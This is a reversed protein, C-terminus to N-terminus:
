AMKVHKFFLLVLFSLDVQKVLQILFFTQRVEREGTGEEGCEEM